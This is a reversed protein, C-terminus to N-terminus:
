SEWSYLAKFLWSLLWMLHGRPHELWGYDHCWPHQFRPIQFLIIMCPWLDSPLSESEFNAVEVKISTKSKIPLCKTWNLQAGWKLLRVCILIWQRLCWVPFALWPLTHRYASSVTFWKMAGETLYCVESSIYELKMRRVCRQTNAPPVLEIDVVKSWSLM